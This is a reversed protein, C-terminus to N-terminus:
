MLAVGFRYVQPSIEPFRMEANEWCKWVPRRQGQSLPACHEAELGFKQGAHTQFEAEVAAVTEDGNRCSGIQEANQQEGPPLQDKKRRV